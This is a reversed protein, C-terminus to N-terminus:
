FISAAKQSIQPTHQIRQKDHNNHRNHKRRHEAPINFIERHLINNSKIDVDVFWAIVETVPLAASKFFVYTGFYM